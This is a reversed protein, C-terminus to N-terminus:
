PAPSGPACSRRAAAARLQAAGIIGLGLIAMGGMLARQLFVPLLFLIFRYVPRATLRLTYGGPLTRELAQGDALRPLEEQWIVAGTGEEFITLWREEQIRLIWRAEPIAAFAEGEPSPHLLMRSVPPADLAARLTLPGSPGRAEVELVSHSRRVIGGYPGLFFPLYPHFGTRGILDGQRWLSLGNEELALRFGDVSQGEGPALLLSHPPPLYRGLGGAGIASVLLAFGLARMRQRARGAEIAHALFSWALGAWLLRWGPTEALSWLGLRDLPDFLPGFRLRARAAWIWYAPDGSPPAQSAGIMWLLGLALLLSPLAIGWRSAM